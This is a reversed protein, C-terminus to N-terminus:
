PQEGSSTPKPRSKDEEFTRLRAEPLEDPAGGASDQCRTDGKQCSRRPLGRFNNVSEIRYDELFARVRLDELKPAADADDEEACPDGPLPFEQITRWASGVPSRFVAMAILFDAQTNREFRRVTVQGPYLTIEDTALLADGLTEKPTELMDEFSAMQLASLDRVQYLRLLTALSRGEADRNVRDSTEIELEVATPVKCTPKQGSCGIGLCVVLLAAVHLVLFGQRQGRCLQMVRPACSAWHPRVDCSATEMGVGIAAANKQQSVNQSVRM